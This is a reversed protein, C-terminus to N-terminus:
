DGWNRILNIPQGASAAIICDVWDETGKKISETTYWATHATMIVRGPELASEDTFEFPTDDVAYGYVRKEHIAKLLAKHDVHDARATNIIFCNKKVLSLEKDTLLPPANRVKNAMVVIYDSTELLSELPTYVAFPSERKQIDYYQIHMEFPALLKAILQGIRGLGMIGVTKDKLEFGRLSVQESIMGRSYDMTLHLRTALALILGVTHEAVSRTCYEPLNSLLINKQNLYDLDIWEYGTSYIILHKLSALRDIMDKDVDKISRRTVAIIDFGSAKQIFTDKDLPKLSEHFTIDCHKKLKHVQEQTFSKEGLACFIITKWPKHQM